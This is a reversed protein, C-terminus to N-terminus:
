LASLAQEIFDGLRSRILEPTLETRGADLWGPLWLAPDPYAQVSAALDWRALDGLTVGLAAEYAATFVQPAAAGIVMSLDLRCYCVDFERAGRRACAWDVIGTLEGAEFLANGIHFDGHLLADGGMAFGEVLRWVRAWDPTVIGEPVLKSRRAALGM